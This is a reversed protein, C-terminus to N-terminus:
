LRSRTEVLSLMLAAAGIEDSKGSYDIERAGIAIGQDYETTGGWLAPSALGNLRYAFGTMRELEYLQRATTWSLVKDFRAIRIAAYADDDWKGRSLPRGSKIGRGFDCAGARAHMIALLSWPAGTRAELARYRAEHELMKDCLNEVETRRSPKIRAAHLQIDYVGAIDVFDTSRPIKVRPRAACLEIVRADQSAAIARRAVTAAKQALQALAVIPAAAREDEHEVDIEKILAQKMSTTERM